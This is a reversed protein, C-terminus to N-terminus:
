KAELDRIPYKENLERIEKSAKEFGDAMNKAWHLFCLYDNCNKSSHFINM